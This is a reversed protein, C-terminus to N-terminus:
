HAEDSPWPHRVVLVSRDALNAVNAATTGFLTDSLGHKHHSGVVVLDADYDRAAACIPLWPTAANGASVGDRLELPILREQGRLVAAAEEGLTTEVTAYTALLDSPLIAPMDLICIVRLKAGSRHALETAYERAVVACESDDAAVLIRQPARSWGRVVLVTRDCHNVVRATTTGLVREIPGYHHAGIAVLDADYTSAAACIEEWAVGKAACLRELRAAPVERAFQHLDARAASLLEESSEPPEGGGEVVRLLSLRAGTETALDVAATLVEFTGPSSDLAAVIHRVVGVHADVARPDLLAGHKGALARAASTTERLM